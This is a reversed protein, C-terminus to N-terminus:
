IVPLSSIAGGGLTFVGPLETFLSTPDQRGSRLWSIESLTLRDVGSPVNEGIVSITPLTQQAVAPIGIVSIFFAVSKKEWSM